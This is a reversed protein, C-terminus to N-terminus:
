EVVDLLPKLLDIAIGCLTDVLQKYSVLAIHRVLLNDFVGDRFYSM